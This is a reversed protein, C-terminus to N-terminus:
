QSYSDKGSISEKGIQSHLVLFFFGRAEKEAIWGCKATLLKRPAPPIKKEPLLHNPLTTERLVTTAQSRLSELAM